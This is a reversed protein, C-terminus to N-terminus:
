HVAWRSLAEEEPVDGVPVAVLLGELHRFHLAYAELAGPQDQGPVPYQMWFSEKLGRLESDASEEDDFLFRIEELHTIGTKIIEGIIKRELSFNM